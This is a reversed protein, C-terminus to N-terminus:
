CGPPFIRRPADFGSYAHHMFHAAAVMTLSRPRFTRRDLHVEFWAPIKPNLFSVVDERPTRAVLHADRVPGDWIPTPQILKSTTSPACGDWRRRGIVVASSGGHIHYRLRDPAELTFNSVIRNTPSSALREVYSVSRLRRFARTARAVLATAAPAHAPVHFLLKDGSVVVPVLNRPSADTEYCGAGCVATPAGLITVRLGNAGLGDPGLVTVRMRHREAAFAVAFSRDEHAAVFADGVPLPPPESRAAAAASALRSYDRGPRAATLIAVAVVLGALLLIELQVSRRLVKTDGRPVLRYRNIWGTVVLLGLLATKVILLRGYGTTWLQAVSRLEALARVVGTVALVGVAVLAVNSFRRVLAGRESSTRLAFALQVLGGTWVAAAALHLLDVAVEVRPRGPDLAHGAVSPVPLLALGFVWVAPAVRPVAVTIAAAAAGLGALLAAVSYAIGFRSSLTGVHPLLGSAGLFVGVFAPFLLLPRGAGTALWFLGGGAAVLLGGFLLWRSVVDSATPGNRASLSAAPPARGAGVAFAIVGSETHGDDSVVRWLVTYDGDELRALPVVLTKGGGVVRPRRGLVSEGGNRVARIGAAIRVPDDFVFRAEHPSRALVAGNAPMTRILTAHALARAPFTLVAAAALLGAIWRLAM